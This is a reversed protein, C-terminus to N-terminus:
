LTKDSSDYLAREVTMKCFIVCFILLSKITSNCMIKRYFNHTNRQKKLSPLPPFPATGALLMERPSFGETMESQSISGPGERDRIPVDRGPRPSDNREPPPKPLPVFRVPLPQSRRATSRYPRFKGKKGLADGEPFSDLSALSFPDAAWLM